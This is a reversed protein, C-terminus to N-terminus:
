IIEQHESDTPNGAIEGEGMTFHGEGTAQDINIFKIINRKNRKLTILPADQYIFHWEKDKTSYYRVLISSQDSANIGGNWRDATKSLALLREETKITGNGGTGLITFPSTGSLAIEIIDGQPIDKSEFTLTCYARLLEINVNVHSATSQSLDVISSGYYRHNSPYSCIEGETVETNGSYTGQYFQNNKDFPALSVILRNTVPAYISGDQTLAFPRGYKIVGNDIIHHPLENEGLYTCDFRYKYGDILSISVQSVDDFLGSVYPEYNKLGKGQWFVNITYLGKPQESSRSMPLESQEISPAICLSVQTTSVPDTPYDSAEDSNCAVVFFSILFLAFAIFPSKM